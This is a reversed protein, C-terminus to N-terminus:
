ECKLDINLNENDDIDISYDYDKRSCNYKVTVYTNENNIEKGTVQNKLKNDKAKLYGNEILVNIPLRYNYDKLEINNISLVKAQTNESTCDDIKVSVKYRYDSFYNKTANIINKKMAECNEKKNRIILKNVNPIAILMIIGLIVVVALVEVLTFGKRNLKM